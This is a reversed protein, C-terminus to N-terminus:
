PACSTGGISSGYSIKNPDTSPLDTDISMLKCIDDATRLTYDINQSSGNAPLRVKVRRLVDASKGTVDLMYQANNFKIPAGISTVGNITVTTATTYLPSIHLLYTTGQSLNIDAVKTECVRSSVECKAGPQRAGQHDAGRGANYGIIGTNSWTTNVWPLMFAVFNNERLNDRSLQSTDIIEIRMGGVSCNGSTTMPDLGFDCTESGSGDSTWKITLDDLDGNAPTIPVVRSEGVNLNSYEITEPAKDYMVCTYKDNGNDGVSIEPNPATDYPSIRSTSCEKKDAPLDANAYLYNAWDSIGSEANYYAQDSLQRDLSQRQEKISNHSMALVVLTMILIMTMTFIISVIGQDNTKKMKIM